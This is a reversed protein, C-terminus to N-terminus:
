NLEGLEHLNGLRKCDDIYNLLKNSEIVLSPPITAEYGFQPM